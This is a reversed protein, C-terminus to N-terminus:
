NPAQGYGDLHNKAWHSLQSKKEQPVANFKTCVKLDKGYIKFAKTSDVPRSYKWDRLPLPSRNGSKM